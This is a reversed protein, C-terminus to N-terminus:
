EGVGDCALALAGLLGVDDGLAAPRISVGRRYVEPARDEVTEHIPGFLLDGAKAVSGGIVFLAPNLLYMLSVLAVGIYFGARRLAERALDDGDRAAESVERATIRSLDGGVRDVLSSSRGAAIAARVARAIAPGSAVAELCGRSGCLCPPGEAEVTIHGVEGGLGGGGEFLRGDLIVGGGIGTSITLYVLDNVGRGAGFRHEGLAALNADNGVFAPVGFTEQL